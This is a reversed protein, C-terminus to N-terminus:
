DLNLEFFFIDDTGRRATCFAGKGSKSIFFSFDDHQSNFPRGMNLPKTWNGDEDKTSYFIDYGGLGSHGKSCFYLNGKADIFPYGENAGTNIVEGLNKSRTWTGDSKRTSMFIDTGGQGPRDAVYYITKGDPSIAPHMYNFERNCFPLKQEKVFKGNKMKSAYLQMNYFDTRDKANDNKTYFIEQNVFDVHANSTNKSFANLSSHYLDPDSYTQGSKSASWIQYFGRGTWGSRTKANLNKAPKDSSYILKGKMLFPSNEDYTTTNHEFPSIEVSEYPNKLFKNNNIMTRLRSAEELWQENPKFQLMYKEAQEYKSAYVLLEVYTLYIQPRVDDLTMLLEYYKLAKKNKNMKRYCDGLKKIVSKNQDEQLAETYLPIADAYRKAKYFVDAKKIKQSQADVSSIFCLLFTFITLITHKQLYNM